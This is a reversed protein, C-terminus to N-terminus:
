QRKSGGTVNMDKAAFAAFAGLLASFHSDQIIQMLPVGSGLMTLVPGLNSLLLGLGASSTWPNSLLFGFLAAINM